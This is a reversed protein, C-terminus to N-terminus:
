PKVKKKGVFCGRQWPKVALYRDRVKIALCVLGPALFACASCREPRQAEPAPASHDTWGHGHSM